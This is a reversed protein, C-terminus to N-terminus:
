LKQLIPNFREFVKDLDFSEGARIVPMLDTDVQRRLLSLKDASLGFDKRYDGTYGEDTVKRKFLRIFKDNYFDFGFEAIHWLDYYDRVAVDKRSIAAKLKEAVAENWSLSLVKGSPFLDDGTFPDQYFHKIETHVPKDLPPQRLSIEIKIIDDKATLVSPYKAKFVYQKSNNFGEGEPKDSTLQLVKLFDPMKERIPTIAKSRQSRVTLPAYYTFDLDESLRHYNLHVKNLLTGGKFVIKDSLLKEINNLIVTLYYDKEVIVPRFKLKGAIAPIIDRLRERDMLM